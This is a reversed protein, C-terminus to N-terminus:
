WCFGSLIKIFYEWFFWIIVYLILVYYVFMFRFCFEKSLFLFFLYYVLYLVKGLNVNRKFLYSKEEFWVRLMEVYKGENYYIFFLM